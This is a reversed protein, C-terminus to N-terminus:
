ILQCGGGIITNELAIDAKVKKHQCKATMNTADNDAAGSNIQYERSDCLFADWIYYTVNVATAM